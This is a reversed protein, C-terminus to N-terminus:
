FGTKEITIRNIDDISSLWFPFFSVEASEVGTIKELKEKIENQKKGLADQKVQEDNIAPGIKATTVLRASGGTDTNQYSLVQLFKFGNDFVGQGSQGKLKKVAAAMLVENLDDNKVGYMIYALEVTAKAKSDSGVADGIKPNSNISGIDIRFSDPIARENDGFRSELDSKMNSGDVDSRLKEVIADVDSQQVYTESVKDEGGAIAGASVIILYDAMNETFGSSNYKVGEEPATLTITISAGGTISAKGSVVYGRITDPMANCSAVAPLNCTVTATGSAKAGGVLRKGTAVFEIENTRKVPEPVVAQLKNEAINTAVERVIFIPQDIKEDSTKASINITLHPAFVLLWILLGILGVFVAAGLIIWKRFKTFNPIKSAKKLKPEDNDKNIKEDDIVAQVAASDGKNDNKIIVQPKAVGEIVEDKHEFSPAQALKAEGALTRAVPIKASAALISLAEDSTILVLKKHRETAARALLKLNVASQLIGIRKPPVLAINDASSTKIKGIVTTLDDDIDVYIAQKKSENM